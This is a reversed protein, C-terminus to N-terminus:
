SCWTNRRAFPSRNREPTFLPKSQAEQTLNLKLGAISKRRKAALARTALDSDHQDPSSPGTAHSCSKMHAQAIAVQLLKSSLSRRGLADCTACRGEDMNRRAGPGVVGRVSDLVISMHRHLNAKLDRRSYQHLSPQPAPAPAPPPAGAPPRKGILVRLEAMLTQVM